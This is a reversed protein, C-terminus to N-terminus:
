LKEFEFITYDLTISVEIQTSDEEQVNYEISGLTVPFTDKFNFQAIPNNKNSLIILTADSVSRESQDYNDPFGLGVMWNYVETYNSYDENLLFTLELSEYDLVNDAHPVGKFPTNQESSTSSISPVNASTIFFETNPLKDIVFRFQTPNAFDINDPRTNM